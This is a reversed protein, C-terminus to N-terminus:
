LGRYVDQEGANGDILDGDQVVKCGLHKNGEERLFEDESIYLHSGRGIHSYAFDQGAMSLWELVPKTTWRDGSKATQFWGLHGGRATLGLAVLGNDGCDTPVHKVVPDDGANIALFPVSIKDLINHTSVWVYYSAADPFPFPSSIGGAIATFASDFEDLTPNWLSLAAQTAKEVEPNSGGLLIKSHKKILAQMNRGMGKSWLYKGLLTSVLSPLVDIISHTM